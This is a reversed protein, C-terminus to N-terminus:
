PAIRVEVSNVFWQFNSASHVEIDDASTSDFSRTGAVVTVSEGAPVPGTSFLHGFYHQGTTLNEQHRTIDDGDNELMFQSMEAYSPTPVNPHLVTATLYNTQGTSSKSFGFEDETRLDHTGVTSQADILVEVVGAVPPTFTMVVQCHVDVSAFDFDGADDCNMTAAVGVLGANTDWFHEKGARFNDSTVPDFGIYPLFLYPPQFLFWRHPDDLDVTPREGWPLAVRHLPSLDLWGALNSALHQGPRVDEGDPTLVAHLQQHFEAGIASLKTADIGRERLFEDVVAKRARNAEDFVVTLGRPPQRLDRFAVRQRAMLERLAAWHELGVADRMRARASAALNAAKRSRAARAHQQRERHEALAQELIRREEKPQDRRVPFQDMGGLLDTM